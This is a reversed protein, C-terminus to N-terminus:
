CGDDDGITLDLVSDPVDVNRGFNLLLHSQAERVTMGSPDIGLEALSNALSMLTDLPPCENYPRLQKRHGEWLSEDGYDEMFRAYAQEEARFRWASVIAQATARAAGSLKSRHDRACRYREVRRELTVLLSADEWLLSGRGHWPKDGADNFDVSYSRASGVLVVRNGTTRKWAFSWRLLKPASLRGGTLPRVDDVEEPAGVTWVTVNRRARHYSVAVVDSDPNHGRVNKVALESIEAIEPGTLYDSISVTRNFGSWRESEWLTQWSDPRAGLLRWEKSSALQGAPQAYYEFEHAFVGDEDGAQPELVMYPGRRKRAVLLADPHMQRLRDVLDSDHARKADKLRRRHEAVVERVAKADDSGVLARHQRNTLKWWDVLDPLDQQAQEVSVGNERALVGALMSRFPEEQVQEERKAKIAAKLVPFLTVYSSRETRAALYGEMEEVTALDFPIVFRDDNPYITCSARTKPKRYEGRCGWGPRDPNPIWAEPDWVEDARQYRFVLSGDQHRDEIKYVDGTVPRSATQPYLRSHGYRENEDARAFDSGYGSFAGIIRMGPRLQELLRRQWDRFPERGTGLSPEADMIFRVRGADHTRKDLFDVGELPLPHFVTTRDILGQLILAVRMFHRVRVDARQEAKVWEETGPKLPYIDHEKTDWNFRSEQFFQTFEDAGPILKRGANFETSTRYLRDGNRILFYTQANMEGVTAMKWPDDYYKADFRPQLAVVGKQEPLVQALHASDSVIWRDFEEIDIADIGGEEAAAACEQDMALVMQRVVVPEQASAPEGDALTLIEEDRGLYLNVTWIGEQLREMMQQLPEMAARAENLRRDLMRRLEERREIIEEQKRAAESRLKAMQSKVETPSQGSRVALATSAAVHEQQTLAHAEAALRDLESSVMEIDTHNTM